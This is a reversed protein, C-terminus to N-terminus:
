RLKLTIITLAALLGAVIWFRSVIKPEPIGKLQFHHHLPAMLFIRKGTGTRKRTYKFYSVQLIVSLTEALYIGGLLPLLLEKRLLIALAAIVGGITLSGTDGMFVEAPYSNYWLFGTCSGAFALAFIVMEGSYPIYMINLYDALIVNGSVYAFVALAGAVIASTGAALGDLGDTLNVGNSMGAVIFICVLMFVFSAGVYQWKGLWRTLWEYDFENNKVFPITTLFKKIDTYTTPSEEAEITQENIWSGETPGNHFIRVKIHPSFTMALAIIGGAAIQGALKTTAAIGKKNHKFVKIYDDIFGITGLLLTIGILLLIYVNHLKAFLLTPILTGAIILIGGMTPTHKKQEEGPLGLQRPCDKVQLERLKTIVYKGLWMTILLALIAASLARFSIFQFVGAGPVDWERDLYTFLYYLM